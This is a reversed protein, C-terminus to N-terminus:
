FSKVAAKVATFVAASKIQIDSEVHFGVHFGGCEGIAVKILRNDSAAAKGSNGRATFIVDCNCSFICKGILM